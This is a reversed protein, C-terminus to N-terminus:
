NEQTLDLPLEQQCGDLCIRVLRLRAPEQKAGCAACELWIRSDPSPSLAAAVGADVAAQDPATEKLAAVMQRVQSLSLKNATCHATTYRRAGEDELTSIEEASAISLRGELLPGRIEEPMNPIALRRMVWDRGKSLSVGIENPSRNESKYLYIVADIEEELTLDRRQLNEVLAVIKVSDDTVDYIRAPIKLRMLRRYAALRRAGWLLQYQGEALRNVGIPQLLGRRQIDAALEIIDEDEPDARVTQEGIVILELSVEQVIFKEGM